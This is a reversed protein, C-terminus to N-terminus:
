TKLTEKTTNLIFKSYIAEFFNFDKKFFRGFGLTGKLTFNEASFDM